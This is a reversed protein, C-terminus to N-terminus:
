VREVKAAREVAINRLRRLLERNRLSLGADLVPNWAFAILGRVPHEDVAVRTSSPGMAELTFVIESGGTWGMGAHLRLCRRETSETVTTSDRIVEIPGAGITHHISSGVDPWDPDFRRICKTGVVFQAYAPADALVSWVTAPDVDITMENHSM